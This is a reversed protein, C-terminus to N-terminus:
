RGVPQGTAANAAGRAAEAIINDPFKLGLKAAQPLDLWVTKETVNEIPIAAPSEGLLVRAVSKAVSYGPRYYGLGVCAVAGRKAVDPDDVLLPVRADHAVKVLGEFGQVVTNDGQIYIADVHRSVLAQAAQMVEATSAVTVEDLKLGAASFLGRAVTVVKVSNAESANYITGILKAGPLIAKIFDVMDQVPPFSGVGTVHPLHNTFSKGAGAAIPDSCYTFAVPKRKVLGCAASIVPTSMPLVLDVDSSDLNQLMSPINAIEGQAHSRRVILNKGEEFGLERLGDFIGKICSDCGAEPAFYALGIKYTRGPQPKLPPAKVVSSTPLNTATATISGNARKRVSDPITWEDKLTALVTENFLFVEPVFNKVPIDAPNKGDLVDAALQGVNRGVEVYDSGLDFLTGRRVSPPLATFVPIQARRAASLILDTALAITVDGSIWLAEVGRSILSNAAEQAATSNEANAEVLTIGLDACVKRAIKTQALSNAEAPNWVLGVSKLEPRMQRATRFISEVPAM